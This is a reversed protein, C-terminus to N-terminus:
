NSIDTSLTAPSPAPRTRMISSRGEWEGEEKEEEEEEDADGNAEDDDEVDGEAADTAAEDGPSPRAHGVPPAHRRRKKRRV